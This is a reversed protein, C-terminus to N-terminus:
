VIQEQHNNAKRRLYWSIIFFSGFIIIVLSLFFAFEFGKWPFCFFYIAGFGLLTILIGGILEWKWAIFLLVLFILWPASNPSNQIIGKIGGGYDGSGSLLAFVFTLSFVILLTYRAIGRLYKALLLNREKNM